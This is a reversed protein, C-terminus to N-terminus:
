RTEDVLRHLRTRFELDISRGLVSHAGTLIRLTAGTDPASAYHRHPAGVLFAPLSRWRRHFAAHRRPPDSPTARRALARALGVMRWKDSGWRRSLARADHGRLYACLGLLRSGCSCQLSPSAEAPGDKKRAATARGDRLDASGSIHDGPDLPDTRRLPPPDMRALTSAIM